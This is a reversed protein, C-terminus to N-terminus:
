LAKFYYNACVPFLCPVSLTIQLEVLEWPRKKKKKEELVMGRRNKQLWFVIVNVSKSQYIHLKGPNKLPSIELWITRKHYKWPNLWAVTEEEVRYTQLM